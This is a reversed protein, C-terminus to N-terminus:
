LGVADSPRQASYLQFDSPAIRESVVVVGGGGGAAKARHQLKWMVQPPSCGAFKVTQPQSLTLGALPPLPPSCDYATPHVNWVRGCCQLGGVDASGVRGRCVYEWWFQGRGVLLAGSALVTSQMHGTMYVASIIPMGGSGLSPQFSWGRDEATQM